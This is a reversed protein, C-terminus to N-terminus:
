WWVKGGIQDKVDDFSRSYIGSSLYKWGGDAFITVVVGEGQEREIKGAVRIATAFTAGSSIGVFVGADQLLRKTWYFAEEAEIMTRGDLASLDLIPPIFGEEISRLGQVVDDPHPATAIVKIEPNYNRLARGVGMLTGGTGLGAVFATINPAAAIIEPGTTTFHIESNAPNGYQYPMFYLPNEEAIQKAVLISENTGKAGDSFIVEAGFSGIMQVREESVSAPMVMKVKYGKLAGMMALGIGTNGSTAELITGGPKLRGTKEGDEVLAKAVRDKISGTPNHGELKALIQVNPSRSFRTLDLLPTNGILDLPSAYVRVQSNPNPSTIAAM